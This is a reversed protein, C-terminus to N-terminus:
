DNYRTHSWESGIVQHLSTRMWLVDRATQGDGEVYLELPWHTYCLVSRPGLHLSHIMGGREPHTLLAKYFSVLASPHVLRVHAFLIPTVLSNLYRSACLIDLTTDADLDLPGGFTSPHSNHCSLELIRVQLERPLTFFGSLPVKTDESNSSANGDPAATGDGAYSPTLHPSKVGAAPAQDTIM